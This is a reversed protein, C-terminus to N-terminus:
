SRGLQRVQTDVDIDPGVVHVAELPTPHHDGAAVLVFTPIYLRLTKFTLVPCSCVDDHNRLLQRIM